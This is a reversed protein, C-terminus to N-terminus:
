HQSAHKLCYACKGCPHSPNLAVKDGKRLNKVKSGLAQITGSVEHGLIIPEQVKITGFGGDKYYHLDSGCIGGAGMKIVVDNDDPSKLEMTEIRIDHREILRCIRTQM